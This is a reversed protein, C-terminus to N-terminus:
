AVMNAICLYYGVPFAICAAMFHFAIFRGGLGLIITIVAGIIQIIWSILGYKWDLSYTIYLAPLFACPISAFMFWAALKSKIILPTCVGRPDILDRRLAEVMVNGAYVMLAVSLLSTNTFLESM